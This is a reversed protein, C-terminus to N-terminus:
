IDRDYKWYNRNQEKKSVFDKHAKKAAPSRDLSELAACGALAFVVLLALFKYAKM